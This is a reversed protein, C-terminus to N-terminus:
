HKSKRSETAQLDRARELLGDEQKLVYKAVKETPTRPLSKRFQVYRPLKFDALQPRLWEQLTEPHLAEGEKLVVCAMIEDEGLDAPVAIVACMAVAPHANIAAEVESSSVNEGRRRIIDKKRDVFFLYGEGDAYVYDGTKFWGDEFAQATQEPDKFYGLMMLPSKVWLEGKDGPGLNQGQDDVIRVQSCELDPDPHRAPLGMSMQKIKGGLPNQAVRPVETLGYGDILNAIGFRKQFAEYVDPTIAAGYATRIAHGPRFEDAPRNILMRGLAGIFNFETAQYEVAQEWFRGASFRPLLILSAGAALSGMVSYYQANAHFLPLVAMVRDDPGLGACLTFAEGCLVFHAQTHLVGKPFGTTGSTYAIQAVAAADPAPHELTPPLSACLEAWDSDDNSATADCCKLWKLQPCETPLHRAVELRPADCILGKAESHATVYAAERPKFAPNVPVMVGGLKALGFWAFIFDPRNSMFLAVADGNRVGLSVLANAARNVEQQFQQYSWVRDEFYLFPKDPHSQVRTNLFSGIDLPRQPDM